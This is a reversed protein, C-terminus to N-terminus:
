FIGSSLFKIIRYKVTFNRLNKLVKFIDKKKLWITWCNLCLSGHFQLFGEECCRTHVTHPLIWHCWHWPPKCPSQPTWWRCLAERRLTQSISRVSWWALGSRYLSRFLPSPNYSQDEWFNYYGANHSRKQWSNYHSHLLLYKCLLKVLM